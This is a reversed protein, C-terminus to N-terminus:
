FGMDKFRSVGLLQLDRRGAIDKHVLLDGPSSSSSKSQVRSLGKQGFTPLKGIYPVGVYADADM